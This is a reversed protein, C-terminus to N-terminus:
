EGLAETKVSSKGANATFESNIIELGYIPLNTAVDSNTERQM